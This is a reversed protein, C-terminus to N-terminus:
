ARLSSMRSRRCAIPRSTMSVASPVLTRRGPQGRSAGVRVPVRINQAIAAAGTAVIAYVGNRPPIREGTMAGSVRNRIPRGSTRREVWVAAYKAHVISGM